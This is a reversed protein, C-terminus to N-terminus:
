IGVVDTPSQACPPATMPLEQPSSAVPPQPSKVANPPTPTAKAPLGSDTEPESDSMAYEDAPPPPAAGRKTPAPAPARAVPVAALDEAKRNEMFVDSPVIHPNPAPETSAVYLWQQAQVAGHDLRAPQLLTCPNEYQSAGKEAGLETFDFSAEAVPESEATVEVAAGPPTEVASAYTTDDVTGWADYGLLLGLISPLVRIPRSGGQLFEPGMIFDLHQTTVYTFAATAAMLVGGGVACYFQEKALCLLLVGFFQMLFTLTLVSYLVVPVLRLPSERCRPYADILIARDTLYKLYFYCAAFFGMYPVNCSLLVAFGFILVARPYEESFTFPKRYFAEDAETRTFALKAKVNGVIWEGFLNLRVATGVFAASMVMVVFYGNVPSVMQVFLNLASKWTLKNIIELSDGGGQLIAQLFLVTGLSFAILYRCERVEREVKDPVMEVKEILVRVFEPLIALLVAAVIVPLYATLLGKLSPDWSEVSVGMNELNGLFGVIAGWFLALYVLGVMVVVHGAMKVLNPRGLNAWLINEPVIPAFWVAREKGTLAAATSVVSGIRGRIGGNTKNSRAVLHACVDPSAFTVYAVGAFKAEAMEKKLSVLEDALADAKDRYHAVGNVKAGCCAKNKVLLKEHTLVEDKPIEEKEIIAYLRHLEKEAAELEDMAKLMGKPPVRPVAVSEVDLLMDAPIRKKLKKNVQDATCGVGNIVVTRHSAAAKAVRLERVIKTVMACVEYTLVAAVFVAAWLRMSKPTVNRVTWDGLGSEYPIVTRKVVGDDHCCKKPWVESWYYDANYSDTAYVPILGLALVGVLAFTCGATRLFTLYLRAEAGQVEFLFPDRGGVYADLFRSRGAAAWGAFNFAAPKRHPWMSRFCRWLNVQGKALFDRTHLVRAVGLLVCSILASIMCSYFFGQSDYAM